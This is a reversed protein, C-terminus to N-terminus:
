MLIRYATYGVYGAILSAGEKRCIVGGSFALPFLTLSMASLALLDGYGGAPIPIPQITATLGGVLLINFINSGVVNGIAIESHGRYAAVCSTVLEPLSTGVAIITLGILADSWGWAKALVVASDVSWDGGKVVMFLGLATLPVSYHLPMPITYEKAEESVEALFPDSEKKRM